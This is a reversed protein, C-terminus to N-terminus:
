RYIISLLEAVCAPKSKGEIEIKAEMLMKLGNNPMDSVSKLVGTMRLKSGSLVPNLFRVKDSGMNIGMKTNKVEYLEELFKPTLSLTM